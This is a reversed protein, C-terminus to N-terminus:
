AGKSEKSCEVVDEELDEEECDSLEELDEEGSLAEELEEQGMDKEEAELDEQSAVHRVEVNSVDSPCEQFFARLRDRIEQPIRPHDISLRAALWTTPYRGQSSTDGRVVPTSSKLEPGFSVRPRRDGEPTSTASEGV